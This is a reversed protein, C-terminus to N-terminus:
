EVPAVNSDWEEGYPQDNDIMWELKKMLERIHSVSLDANLLFEMLM